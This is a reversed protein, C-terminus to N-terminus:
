FLSSRVSVQRILQFIKKGLNLVAFIIAFALLTSDIETNEEESLSLLIPGFRTANVLLEPKYRRIREVNERRLHPRLDNEIGELVLYTLLAVFTVYLLLTLIHFYIGYTLRRICFLKLM